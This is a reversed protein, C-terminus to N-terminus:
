STHEESRVGCVLIKTPGQSARKLPQQDGGLVEVLQQHVIGIVQQAPTISQMVDQGLAKERVAAIFDRVVKFNVDAELLAIRVERLAEDLEKEGIRGSSGLRRFTNQLRESLADLM